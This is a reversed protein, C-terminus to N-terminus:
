KNLKDLLELGKATLYYAQNKSKPKDPIALDIYGGSMAPEKYNERFKDRSRIGLKGMIEQRQLTQTGIVMVLRHVANADHGEDHGRDHGRDHGGAPNQPDDHQEKPAFKGYQVDQFVERKITAMFGGRVEEFVPMQLHSKVVFEEHIKEYGRGWNEILGMLFFVKAILPNRPMSEHKQMLTQVTFDQPLKGPNWLEVMDDWVRMQIFTGTYDRHMIANCIIERLGEDPMELTEIRDLGKYSYTAVLYRNRLTWMVESPMQVLPCVVTDDFILDAQSAGFRGIRFAPLAAWSEIDKGFLMLAANTLEGKSTMLKLKRLVTEQSESRASANLRKKEIATDIFFKWAKPDLDDLTAEPRTIADWQVNMKRVLFTALEQGRLEQTTSGSRIYYKGNYSIAENQPLVIISIFKWGTAEDTHSNVEAYFGLNSHIKNPLNEMLVQVNDLKAISGDDEVGIYLTGGQSNAFACLEKLFDDRWKRKYEVVQSEKPLNM